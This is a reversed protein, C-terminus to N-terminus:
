LVDIVLDMANFIRNIFCPISEEKEQWIQNKWGNKYDMTSFSYVYEFVYGGGNTYIKLSILIKLRM